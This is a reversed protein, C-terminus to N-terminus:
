RIWRPHVHIPYDSLPFIPCYPPRNKFYESPSSSRSPTRDVARLVCTDEASQTKVIFSKLKLQEDYEFTCSVDETWTNGSSRWRWQISSISVVRSQSAFAQFSHTAVSVVTYHMAILDFYSRVASLGIFPASYQPYQTVSPSHDLTVTQRTSFYSLLMRSNRTPNSLAALFSNAAHILQDQKSPPRSSAISQHTKM